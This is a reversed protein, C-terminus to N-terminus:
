LKMSTRVASETQITRFWLRISIHHSNELRTRYGLSIKAPGQASGSPNKKVRTTGIRTTDFTGALTITLYFLLWVKVAALSGPDPSALELWVFAFLGFAAPYYGLRVPYTASRFHLSWLTIRYLTRMPSVVRWVPGAALSAAVLGVWLLVYFVGPLANKSNQPGFLGGIVVWVTFALAVAAVSWRTIAADVVRTVWDPLAVGPKATDFRPKRWALAVVAFTFTLAWAAGVLAFGLPVPLDTSGGLGHALVTQQASTM